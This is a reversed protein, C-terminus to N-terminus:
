ATKEPRNSWMKMRREDCVSVIRVENTTSGTLGTVFTDHAKIVSLCRGEAVGWVRVIRNADGSAVQHADHCGLNIAEGRNM